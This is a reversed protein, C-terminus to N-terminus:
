RLDLGLDFVKVSHTLAGVSIFDVGPRPSRAPASSPSGAPPRSRPAAPPSGRRGRGDDATDMNDLLIETAARRGAARAAPRPRHGRGRRPLDPYAARVPEYAPVVGGAAVVHNDKVMARDALSFRHNVGAAAACPTSRSPATADAADQPHRAGPRPHGRARRGLPATATAVGSLHRPSTSRPASPPSCAAPRARSVTMVVDGPRWRAATPSGTPSRSTTAWRTASSWRRSASGPSWARSAPASTPSRRPGDRADRPAPSTAAGNPLDEDFGRRGHEYVSARTSGPPAGARRGAVRPLDAYSTRAITM